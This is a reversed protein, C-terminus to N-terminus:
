DSSSMLDKTQSPKISISENLSTIRKKSHSNEVSFVRFSKLSLYGHKNSNSVLKAQYYFFYLFTLSVLFENSTVIVQLLIENMLAQESTM